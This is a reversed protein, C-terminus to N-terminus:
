LLNMARLDDRPEDFSCSGFSTVRKRAADIEGASISWDRWTFTVDDFVFSSQDEDELMEAIRRQDWQHKFTLVGAGLVNLFGHMKTKVEDRFMRVPHHLGATFKVPLRHRQSLALVLAIQDSNPFAEATVGGTRLKFGFTKSRESLLPIAQEAQGSTTEWFARVPLDRLSDSASSIMGADFDGPLAMELQLVELTTGGISRLTGALKQLEDLFQTANETKPGLASIVFPAPRSLSSCFERAEAIKATPLVFGGLMWSEDTELDRAFTQLAPKLALSAPPFLGAYDIAHAM